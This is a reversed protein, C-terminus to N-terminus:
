GQEIPMRDEQFAQLATLILFAGLFYWVSAPHKKDM